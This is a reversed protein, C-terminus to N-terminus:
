QIGNPNIQRCNNVGQNESNSIYSLEYRGSTNDRSSIQLTHEGTQEIKYLM